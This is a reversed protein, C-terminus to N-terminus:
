AAREACLLCLLPEGEARYGIHRGCGECRNLGRTAPRSRKGAPEIVAAVKEPAPRSYDTRTFPALRWFYIGGGSRFGIVARSRVAEIQSLSWGEGRLTNRMTSAAVSKGALLEIVRERLRRMDDSIAHPSM